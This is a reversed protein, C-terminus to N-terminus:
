RLLHSEEVLFPGGALAAAAEDCAGGQLWAGCREQVSNSDWLTLEVRQQATQRGLTQATEEYSFEYPCRLNGAEVAAIAQRTAEYMRRAQQCRMGAVHRIQYFKSQVADTKIKVREQQERLYEGYTKHRQFKRRDTVAGIFFEKMQERQEPALRESYEDFANRVGSWNGLFARRQHESVGKGIEGVHIRFLLNDVDVGQINDISQEVMVRRLVCVFNTIQNYISRQKRDARLLAFLAMTDRVSQNEIRGM